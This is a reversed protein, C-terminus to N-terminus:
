TGSRRRIGSLRLGVVGIALLFLAVVLIALPPLYQQQFGALRGREPADPPYTVEVTDGVAFQAPSRGNGTIEFTRGALTYRVVPYVFKARPENRVVTGVVTARPGPFLSERLGPWEAVLYGTPGRWAVTACLVGLAIAVLGV